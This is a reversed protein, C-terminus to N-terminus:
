SWLLASAVLPNRVKLPLLKEPRLQITIITMEVGYISVRQHWTCAAFHWPAAPASLEILVPRSEHEEHRESDRMESDEVSRCISLNSSSAFVFTAGTGRRRLSIFTEDPSWEVSLAFWDPDDLGSSVCCHTSDLAPELPPHSREFDIQSMLLIPVPRLM